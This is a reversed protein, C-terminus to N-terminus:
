FSINKVGFLCMRAHNRANQAIMRWFRDFPKIEARALFFFLFDCSLSLEGIQGSTGRSRIKVLTPNFTGRTSKILQLLYQSLRHLSKFKVPPWLELNEWIFRVDGNYCHQAVRLRHYVHTHPMLWFRNFRPDGWSMTVFPRFDPIWAIWLFDHINTNAM